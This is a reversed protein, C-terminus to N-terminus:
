NFCSATGGGLGDKRWLRIRFRRLCLQANKVAAEGSFQGSAGHGVVGATSVLLLLASPLPLLPRLCRRARRDRGTDAGTASQFPMETVCYNGTLTESFIEMTHGRARGM